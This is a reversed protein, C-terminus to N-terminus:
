GEYKGEVVPRNTSASLKFAKAYSNIVNNFLTGNYQQNIRKLYNYMLIIDEVKTEKLKTM